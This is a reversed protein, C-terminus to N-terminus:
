GERKAWLALGRLVANELVHVPAGHRGEELMARLSEAWGGHVFLPADGLEARQRARYWDVLAAASRACGERLARATDDGETQAFADHNGDAIATAGQLSHLMLEPSPAILGERQAGTADLADLTLATGCGAVVVPGDHGEGRAAALALFRDIGLREPVRYSNTVGCGQRPSRLWQAEARPWTQLARRLRDVRSGSAVSAVLARAPVPWRALQVQLVADFDPADWALAFGQALEDEHLWAGKLRSNGLDFLWVADDTRPSM